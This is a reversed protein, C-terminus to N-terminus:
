YESNIFFATITFIVLFASIHPVLNKVSDKMAYHYAFYGAVCFPLWTMTLKNLEYLFINEQFSIVEGIYPLLGAGWLFARHHREIPRVLKRGGFYLSMMILAFISHWSFAVVATHFKLSPRAPWMRGEGGFSEMVEPM